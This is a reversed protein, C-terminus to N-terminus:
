NVWRLLWHAMAQLNAKPSTADFAPATEVAAVASAVVVAVVVVSVAVVRVETLQATWWLIM